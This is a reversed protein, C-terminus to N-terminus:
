CCLLSTFDIFTEVSASISDKIKFHERTPNTLNYKFIRGEVLVIFFVCRCDAPAASRFSEGTQRSQAVTNKYMKKAIWLRFRNLSNWVQTLLSIKRTEANTVAHELSNMIELYTPLQVTTDAIWFKYSRKKIEHKLRRVDRKRITGTM